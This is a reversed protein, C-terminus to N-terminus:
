PRFTIPFLEASMHGFARPHDFAGPAVIEDVAARAGIRGIVGDAVGGRIIRETWEHSRRVVGDNVTRFAQIARAVTAGNTIIEAIPPVDVVLLFPVADLPLPENAQIAEPKVLFSAKVTLSRAALRM